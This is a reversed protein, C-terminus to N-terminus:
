STCIGIICFFAPSVTGLVALPVVLLSYLYRAYQTTERIRSM